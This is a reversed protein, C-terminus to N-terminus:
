FIRACKRGIMQQHSNAVFSVTQKKNLEKKKKRLKAELIKEAQEM